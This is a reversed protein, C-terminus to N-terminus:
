ARSIEQVSDIKKLKTIIDDLHDIDKVAITFFGNVMKNKESELKIDVVNANMQKLLVSLDALLGTKD